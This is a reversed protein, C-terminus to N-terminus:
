RGAMRRPGLYLLGGVGTMGLGIWWLRDADIRYVVQKNDQLTRWVLPADNRLSRRKPKNTAGSGATSTVLPNLTTTPLIQPPTYVMYMPNMPTGDWQYLDLRQVNHYEDISVSYKEFLESTNYRMFLANSGQCPNSILQRGDVKIPLTFLSGTANVFYQGHQWQMLGQPCQPKVPDSLARYFAEEFHGDATFSYSIGTHEPEIFEDNIPDYFDKYM